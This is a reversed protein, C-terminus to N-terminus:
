PLAITPTCKGQWSMNHPNSVRNYDGLIDFRTLFELMTPAPALPAFLGAYVGRKDRHQKVNFGKLLGRLDTENCYLLGEKGLMLTHFSAEEPPACYTFVPLGALSCEAVSLGFTEGGGRAHLCANCNALFSVKFGMDVNTPLHIINPHAADCAFAQTGLLVFYDEPAAAAHACLAERVFAIDFSDMGGHRCFVKATHPVGWAERLQHQVRPQERVGGEGWKAMLHVVPVHPLRPIVESAVAFSDWHPEGGEFVSHLLTKTKGCWKEPSPWVETCTKAGCQIAYFADPTLNAILDDVESHGNKMLLHVRGPFRATFKPLTIMSLPPPMRRIIGEAGFTVVHAEAGLLEEFADAFDYLAVETGRPGFHNSHMLIKYPRGGAVHPPPWCRASDGYGMCCCKPLAAEMHTVQQPQAHPSPAAFAPLLQQQPPLRLFNQPFFFFGLLLAASCCCLM